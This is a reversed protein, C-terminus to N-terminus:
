VHFWLDNFFCDFSFIVSSGHFLFLFLQFLFCLSPLKKRPFKTSKCQHSCLGFRVCMRARNHDSPIVHAVVWSFSLASAQVDEFVFFFLPFFFSGGPKVLLLLGRIVPIFSFHLKLPQNNLVLSCHISMDWVRPRIIICEKSILYQRSM